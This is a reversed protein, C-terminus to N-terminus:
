PRLREIVETSVWYIDRNALYFLYKGDPSLTACINGGPTNIEPGLNVAEGWSGNKERFCVFLDVQEGGEEESTILADFVVFSEDPAICPHASGQPLNLEGEVIQPQTYEGNVLESRAIAGYPRGSTLDTVYISGDRSTTAYMGPMVEVPEGWGDGLREVMMIKPGSGFFMKKGDWSIHPEFAGYQESLPSPRPASWGDEEWRCVMMESGRRGLYIEKGGPSVILHFEFHGRTSIIGPAFPEPILGPPEEGLYPGQRGTNEGPQYALIERTEHLADEIFGNLRDLNMQALWNRPNLEMSKKFNAAALERNGLFIYGEGLSSYVGASDPFLEANMKFVAVAEDMQGLGVFFYGLNDFETQDFSYLGEEALKMESFHQWAKTISSQKLVSEIEAAASRPKGGSGRGPVVGSLVLAAFVFATVKM